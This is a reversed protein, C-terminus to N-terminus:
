FMVDSWYVFEIFFECSQSLTVCYLLKLIVLALGRRAELYDILRRPIETWYMFKRSQATNCEKRTETVEIERVERSIDSLHLQNTTITTSGAFRIEVWASKFVKIEHRPWSVRKITDRFTGSFTAKIQQIGKIDFYDVQTCCHRSCTRKKISQGSGWREHMVAVRIEHSLNQTVIKSSSAVETQLITIGTQYVLNSFSSNLSFSNANSYCDSFDAVCLTQRLLSIFIMRSSSGWQSQVNHPQRLFMM